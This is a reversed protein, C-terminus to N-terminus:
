DMLGDNIPWGIKAQVNESGELPYRRMTAVPVHANRGRASLGNRLFLFKL